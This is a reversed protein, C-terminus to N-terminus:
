KVDEVLPKNPNIFLWLVCGICIPVSTLLLAQQWGFTVAMYATIVPAFMGALNGWTNMWASVSSGFKGGLDQCGAWSAIYAFGLTGLSVSLWILNAAESDANAGMYLGLMCFAFGFIAFCSRSVVKSVGKAVLKDSLIGGIFVAFTLALWPAAAALGMKQMTMQRAEMLYIPIWSLFLYMIYNAVFYQMGVFWFRPNVLFKSGWPALEKKALHAIQTQTRGENIADIEGQNVNPHEQPTDRSMIYWLIAIIAGAIGFLYFAWRWGMNAVIQVTIWPGIAPAFFTGMLMGASALAKEKTSFWRAYFAQITPYLPAEGVGFMFRVIMFSVLGWALPTLLTFISWWMQAIAGMIRAGFKEALIAGPIQFLAYGFFFASMTYGLDVKNFGMEAMINTGTISLNVRDLYAILCACYIVVLLKWRVASPKAVDQTM